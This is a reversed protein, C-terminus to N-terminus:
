RPSSARTLLTQTHAMARHMSSPASRALCGNWWAPRRIRPCTRRHRPRPLRRHGHRDRPARDDRRAPVARLGALGALRGSLPSVMAYEGGASPILTGLESYRFAVGICLLSGIAITLATWTGLSSFLDPVVVFLTSAPTVCSLTVAPSDGEAKGM